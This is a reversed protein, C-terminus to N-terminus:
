VPSLLDSSKLSQLNMMQLLTCHWDNQKEKPTMNQTKLHNHELNTAGALKKAGQQTVGHETQKGKKGGERLYKSSCSKGPMLIPGSGM